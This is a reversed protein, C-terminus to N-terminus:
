KSLTIVKISDIFSVIDHSQALIQETVNQWSIDLNYIEKKQCLGNTNFTVFVVVILIIKKIM